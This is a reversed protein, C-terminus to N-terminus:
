SKSIPVIGFYAVLGCDRASATEKQFGVSSRFLVPIASDPPIIIPKPLIIQRAAENVMDPFLNPDERFIELNRSFGVLKGEWKAHRSRKAEAIAKLAGQRVIAVDWAGTLGGAAFAADVLNPGLVFDGFRSRHLLDKFVTQEYQLGLAASDKFGAPDLMLEVGRRYRKIKREGEAPCLM